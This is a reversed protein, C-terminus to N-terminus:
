KDAMMNQNQEEAFEQQIKRGQDGAGNGLLPVNEQKTEEQMM